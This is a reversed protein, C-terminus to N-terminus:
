TPRIPAWTWCWTGLGYALQLNQYYVLGSNYLPDNVRVIPGVNDTSTCTVLAVHFGTDGNWAFGVQVPHGNSTEAQLSEFTLQNDIFPASVGWAQYVAQIQGIPMPQNCSNSDPAQCCTTQDFQKNVVDCKDVASGNSRLVMEVCAAWCWETPGQAVEPITPCGGATALGEAPIDIAIGSAALPLDLGRTSADALFM